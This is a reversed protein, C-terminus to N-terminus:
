RQTEAEIPILRRDAILIPSDYCPLAKFEWVTGHCLANSEPIEYVLGERLDAYVPRDFQGAFFTFDLRTKENSDSPVQDDLWITVVQGGSSRSEYGFLSLDTPQQKVVYAYRPIRVLTDDFVATLNQVAHYAPKAYEVTQDERSKLLGKRNMEDPYKMHM